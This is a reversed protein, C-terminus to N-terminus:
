KITKWFNHLDELMETTPKDSLNWTLAILRGHVFGVIAFRYPRSADEFSDRLILACAPGVSTQFLAPAVVTKLSRKKEDGYIKDAYSSCLELSMSIKKEIPFKYLDASRLDYLPQSERVLVGQFEDIKGIESLPIDKKSYFVIEEKSRLNIQSPKRKGFGLASQFPLILILILLIKM